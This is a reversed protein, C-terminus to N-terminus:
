SQMLRKARSISLLMGLALGVVVTSIALKLTTWLGQLLLPFYEILSDM